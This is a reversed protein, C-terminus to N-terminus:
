ICAYYVIALSITALYFKYILLTLSHQLETDSNAQFRTSSTYATYLASGPYATYLASGTFLSSETLSFGSGRCPNLTLGSPHSAEVGQVWGKM